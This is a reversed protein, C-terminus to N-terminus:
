RPPATRAGRGAADFDGPRPRPGYWDLCMVTADDDLSGAGAELVAATLAAVAERPHLDRTNGVLGALDVREARRELMGDTLMVLRDGARLDLHQIRYEPPLPLGFPQDAECRVEQVQGDRLRLPPPHGANVFRARGDLLGIRLLQGTAHGRGHDALARHAQGAQEALGVGARRAGRLAGVLITAMLAANVDHGMPDTVSLHLDDRDLAYDFTDGSIEGSPELAGSLAFEAMECSMSPPLLQHQIEASLALRATRKGWSYLDTFRQDAIVIYALVGAAASLKGLTEEGAPEPLILELLGITDGRNTVPLIVLEQPPGGVSQRLIRQSRLVQEYVGGDLGIREGERSATAISGAVGVRVLAKGTLDVVLFSAATAGSRQRLEEVVADVSEVPNATEAVELLRGADSSLGDSM